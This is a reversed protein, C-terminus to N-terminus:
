YVGIQSVMATRVNGNADLYEVISGMNFTGNARGKEVEEFTRKQGAQLAYYKMAKEGVAVGKNKAAEDAEVQQRKAKEVYSRKANSAQRGTQKIRSHFTTGEDALGSDLYTTKLNLYNQAQLHIMAAENGTKLELFQTKPDKVYLDTYPMIVNEFSSEIINQQRTEDLFDISPKEKGEAAAEKALDTKYTRYSKLVKDYTNTAKEKEEPTTANNIEWTLEVLREQFTDAKSREKKDLTFRDAFTGATVSQSIHPKSDPNNPDYVNQSPMNGKSMNYTASASGGNGQVTQAHNLAYKGAATGNSLIDAVQEETYYLNLSETLETLAANKAERQSKRRARERTAEEEAMLEFRRQQEKEEEIAGVISESMGALFGGFNFSM